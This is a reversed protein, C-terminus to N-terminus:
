LYMKWLGYTRIDFLRSYNLPMVIFIPMVIGMGGDHLGVGICFWSDLNQCPTVGVVM